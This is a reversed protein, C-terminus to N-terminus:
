LYQSQQSIRIYHESLVRQKEKQWMDTVSMAMLSAMQPWHNLVSASSDWGFSPSACSDIASVDLLTGPCWPVEEGGSLCMLNQQSFNSVDM